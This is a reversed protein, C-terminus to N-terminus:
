KNFYPLYEEYQEEIKLNKATHYIDRAAIKIKGTVGSSEKDPSSLWAKFEKIRQELAKKCRMTKNTTM